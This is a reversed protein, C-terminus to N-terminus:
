LYYSAYLFELPTEYVIVMTMIKLRQFKQILSGFFDVKQSNM